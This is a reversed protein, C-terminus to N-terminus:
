QGLDDSLTWDVFTMNPILYNTQKFKKSTWDVFAM